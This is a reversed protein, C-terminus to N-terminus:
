IGLAVWTRGGDTTRLLAGSNGAVWGRTRDVFSVATLGKTTGTKLPKWHTGGDTTKLVRGGAGVVYGVKGDIFDVATLRAACGSRQMVWSAGADVTKVIRGADGVAWGTSAGPFDLDRYYRYKAEYAPLVRRVWQAGATATAYVGGSRGWKLVYCRKGTPASVRSFGGSGDRGPMDLQATWSKGGDDTRAIGGGSESTGNSWGAWGRRGNAFDAQNHNGGGALAPHWTDGGDATYEVGGYGWVGIARNAFAVFTLDNGALIQDAVPAWQAGGDTTRWVRKTGATDDVGSVWGHTRDVFSLSLFDPSAAAAGAFAPLALACLLLVLLGVITLRRVASM